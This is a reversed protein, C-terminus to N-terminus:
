RQMELEKQKFYTSLVELKTQSEQHQRDAKMKEIRLQESKRELDLIKETFCVFASM